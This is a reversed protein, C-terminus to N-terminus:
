RWPCLPGSPIASSALRLPRLRRSSYFNFCSPPSPFKGPARRWSSILFYLCPCYIVHVALENHLFAFHLSHLFSLSSLGSLPVLWRFALLFFIQSYPFLPFGWPSLHLSSSCPLSAFSLFGMWGPASPSSSPVWRGSGSYSSCGLGFATLVRVGLFLGILCSLGFPPGQRSPFQSEVSNRLSCSFMSPLLWLLVLLLSRPPRVGPGCFCSDPCSHLLSAGSFFVLAFSVSALSIYVTYVRTSYSM